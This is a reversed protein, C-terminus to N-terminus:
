VVEKISPVAAEVYQLANGLSDPPSLAELLGSRPDYFGIHFLTYDAAHRSFAQAEDNCADAFTRIMQGKTSFFLPPLYAEAAADFVAFVLMRM